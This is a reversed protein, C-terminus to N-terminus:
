GAYIRSDDEDPLMSRFALEVVGHLLRIVSAEILVRHVSTVIGIRLGLTLVRSRGSPIGHYQHRRQRHLLAADLAAPRNPTVAGAVPM